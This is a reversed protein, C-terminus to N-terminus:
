VYQLDAGGDERAPTGVAIFVMEAASLAKELSESFYLQGKAANERILAELGPEYIPSAGQQLQAIKAADTDVCCVRNGMAAFCVGTVLGVYGCGVM